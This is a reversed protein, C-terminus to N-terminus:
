KYCQEFQVWVSRQSLRNFCVWRSQFEILSHSSAQRRNRLTLRYIRLQGVAIAPM